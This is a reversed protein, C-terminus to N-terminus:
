LGRSSGHGGGGVQRGIHQSGHGAHVWWGGGCGERRTCPLTIHRRDLTPFPQAGRTEASVAERAAEEEGTECRYQPTMDLM